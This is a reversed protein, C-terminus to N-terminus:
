LRNRELLKDIARSFEEVDNRSSEFEQMAKKMVKKGPVFGVEQGDVIQRHGDEILHGHPSKNLIRTVFHGGPDIFVKGRKFSKHYNGTKKKVLSRAKKRVHKVANNGSVRMAERFVKKANKEVKLLDNQFDSLGDIRM